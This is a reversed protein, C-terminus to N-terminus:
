EHGCLTSVFGASSLLDRSGCTLLFLLCQDSWGGAGVGLEAATEGPFVRGLGGNAKISKCPCLLATGVSAGFTLAAPQPPARRSFLGSFLKSLWGLM